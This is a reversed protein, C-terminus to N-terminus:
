GVRDRPSAHRGAPRHAPDGAGRVRRPAAGRRGGRRPPRPAAEPPAGRGGGPCRGGGPAAGGGGARRPGGGPPRPAASAPPRWRSRRDVSRLHARLAAIDDSILETDMVGSSVSTRRHQMAVTAGSVLVASGRFNPQKSSHSKAAELLVASDPRLPLMKSIDCF